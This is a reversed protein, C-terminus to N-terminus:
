YVSLPPEQVVCSEHYIKRIFSSSILCGRKDTIHIAMDVKPLPVLKHLEEIMETQTKGKELKLIAMKRKPDKPPPSELIDSTPTNPPADVDLHVRSAKTNLLKYVLGNQFSSYVINVEQRVKDAYKSEVPSSPPATLSSKKPIIKHTTFCNVCRNNVIHSSCFLCSSPLHSVPLLPLTKTKKEPAGSTGNSIRKRKLPMDRTVYEQFEKEEKQKQQKTCVYAPCHIHKWYKNLIFKEAAIVINYWGGVEDYLSANDMIEVSDLCHGEYGMKVYIVSAAIVYIRPVKGYFRERMVSLLRLCSYMYAVDIENEEFISLVFNMVEAMPIPNHNILSHSTM